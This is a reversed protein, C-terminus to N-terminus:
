SGGAMGQAGPLGWMLGRPHLVRGSDLISLEQLRSKELSQPNLIGTQPKRVGSARVTPIQSDSGQNSEPETGCDTSQKQSKPVRLSHTM